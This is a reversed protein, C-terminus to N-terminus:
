REGKVPYFVVGFGVSAGCESCLYNAYENGERPCRKVTLERREAEFESRCSRCMGVWKQNDKSARSKICKM